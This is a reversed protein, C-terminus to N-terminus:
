KEYFSQIKKAINVIDKKTLEVHLPLSILDKSARHANPCTGKAYRYMKYETNDIYHVGPYIDYKNLYEILSDRKKIRIQCLHNTGLVDYESMSIFKMALNELYLEKLEKRRENDTNLYKLAVIGMAAMISNGHYKYGVYPVDYKWRYNGRQSTRTYTDKDIGLWSLKRAYRDFEDDQFCVMGSDATPLNKVAQFSFVSVDSEHGVHQLSSGMGDFQEQIRTGACQAGDFILKLNYYKCISVIEPLKGISGGFGVFMIARTKNTIKSEVSKPDLCLYEDIDAFVPNLNEYLIVHNTSVFTLPTTIIEDNDNWGYKDKLVRVALHLGATASNLFHANPLETYCKWDNEFQETKFGMGTWGVDLCEEIEKLVEAKRYHPKLVQIM